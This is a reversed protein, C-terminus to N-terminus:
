TKEDEKCSRYKKMYERMYENHKEKHEDRYLKLYTRHKKRWESSSRRCSEKWSGSDPSAAKKARWRKMDALQRKHQCEPSPCASQEPHRISPTFHKGCIVCRKEEPM